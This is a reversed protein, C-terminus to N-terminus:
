CRVLLFWCLLSCHFLVWRDVVFERTGSDCSESSSLFWLLFWKLSLVEEEMIRGLFKVSDELGTMGDEERVCWGFNQWEGGEDEAEQLKM